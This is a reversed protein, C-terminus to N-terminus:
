GPSGYDVYGARADAEIEVTGGLADIVRQAVVPMSTAVRVVVDGDDVMCDSLSMGNRDAVERASTCSGSRAGAVAALDAVSAASARAIGVSGVLAVVLAVGVLLVILALSWVAAAGRDDTVVVM